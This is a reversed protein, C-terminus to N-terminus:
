KSFPIYQQYEKPVQKRYRSPVTGSDVSRDIEQQRTMRATKKKKAPQDNQTTAPATTAPASTTAAPPPTTAAPESTAAPAPTTAAPAPATDAPATAPAPATTTDSGTAPANQAMLLGAPVCVAVAAAAVIRSLKQM